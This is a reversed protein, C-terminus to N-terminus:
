IKLELQGQPKSHSNNLENCFYSKKHTFNLIHWYSIKVLTSVQLVSAFLGTDAGEESINLNESLIRAM